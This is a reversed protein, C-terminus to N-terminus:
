SSQHNFAESVGLLGKPVGSPGSVRMQFCSSQMIWFVLQFVLVWHSPSFTSLRHLTKKHLLSHQQTRHKLSTYQISPTQWVHFIYKLNHSTNDAEIVVWGWESKKSNHAARCYSCSCENCQLVAVGLTSGVLDRPRVESHQLLPKGVRVDSNNCRSGVTQLKAWLYWGRLIERPIVPFFQTITCAKLLLLLSETHPLKLTTSAESDRRALMIAFHIDDNELNETKLTKRYSSVHSHCLHDRANGEAILSFGTTEISSRNGLSRKRFTM